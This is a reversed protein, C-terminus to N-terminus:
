RARVDFYLDFMLQNGAVPTFEPSILWSAEHLQPKGSNDALCTGM